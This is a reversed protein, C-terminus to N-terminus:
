KHELFFPINGPNLQKGERRIEFHLHPGTTRGTTGVTGIAQGTEVNEGAAVRINELHGYLTYYGLEHQLIVLKGYGNEEGAYLVTGWRSARVTKGESSAIDVGGHFAMENVFPDVRTGYGSTQMGVIPSHFVVGSLYSRELYALVTEPVFYLAGGPRVPDDLTLVDEPKVGYRLALADKAADQAAPGATEQGSETDFLGMAEVEKAEVEKAEFFLGLTDPLYVTKGRRVMGIFDLRNLTAISDINLSTKAILNWIDEYPKVTYAYIVPAAYSEKRTKKLMRNKSAATSGSLKLYESDEYSLDRLPIVEGGIPHPASCFFALVGLIIIYICEKGM